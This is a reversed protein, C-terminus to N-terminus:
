AVATVTVSPNGEIGSMYTDWIRISFTVPGSVGSFAGTTYSYNNGSTVRIQPGSATGISTQFTALCFSNTYDASPYFAGSDCYGYYSITYTRAPDFTFSGITYTGVARPINPQGATYATYPYTPPPPPAAATSGSVTSQTSLNSAADRAAVGFTYTTSSALGSVTASTGTTATSLIGNRYVNYGTVAVNDTSANWALSVSSSSSGTVRFSTPASPPTTDASSWVETNAAFLKDVKAAGVYFAVGADKTSPM